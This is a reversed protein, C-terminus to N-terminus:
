DVLLLAELLCSSYPCPRLRVTFTVWRAQEYLVLQLTWGFQVLNLFHLLLITALETDIVQEALDKSNFSHVDQLLCVAQSIHNLLYRQHRLVLKHVDLLSLVLTKYNLIDKSELVEQSVNARSLLVISNLNLKFKTIAKIEFM